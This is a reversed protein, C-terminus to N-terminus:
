DSSFSRAEGAGATVLTALIPWFLMSLRKPLSNQQQSRQLQRPSRGARLQNGDSAQRDRDVSSTNFWALEIETVM